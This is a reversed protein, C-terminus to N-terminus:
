SGVPGTGAGQVAALAVRLDEVLGALARERLDPERVRLVASPHVTALVKATGAVERLSPDIDLLRGRMQTLRFRPGLLAGAATAGLAVIVRPKLVFIERELWPRCAAVEGMTPKKHLRRKGRESSAWKFHKVANTIYAKSRDVGAEELARDLLHGAPGVFPRGVQDERDGPQEGVLMLPTHTHTDVGDPAGGAGPLAAIVEGFVAQTARAYLPCGRCTQAAARLVPLEAAGEPVFRRAGGPPIGDSVGDSTIRMGSHPGRTHPGRSALLFDPRCRRARGRASPTRLMVPHIAPDNLGAM